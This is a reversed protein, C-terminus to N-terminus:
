ATQFTVYELEAKASRLEKTSATDGQDWMWESAEELKKRIQVREAETSAEIFASNELQDRLRYTYAELGNRAEERDRKRTEALDIDRLRIILDTM